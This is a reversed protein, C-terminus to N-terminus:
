AGSWLVVRAVPAAGVLWGVRLVSGEVGDVQDLSLLPRWCSWFWGEIVVGVM